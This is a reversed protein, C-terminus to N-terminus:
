VAGRSHDKPFTEDVSAYLFLKLSKKQNTTEKCAQLYVFVSKHM